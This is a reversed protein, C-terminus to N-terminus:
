ILSMKRFCIFLTLYFKRGSGSHKLDKKSILSFALEKSEKSEILEQDM